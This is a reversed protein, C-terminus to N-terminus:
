AQRAEDNDKPWTCKPTFAIITRYSANTEKERELDYRLQLKLFFEDSLGFFTALKLGTNVTIRRKGNVIESLATQPIKAGKAVQYYSLGFPQIFEEQLIVGPHELPILQAM